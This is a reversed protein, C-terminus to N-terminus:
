KGIGEPLKPKGFESPVYGRRRFQSLEFLQELLAHFKSLLKTEHPVGSVPVYSALNHGGGGSVRFPLWGVNNDAIWSPGCDKEAYHM